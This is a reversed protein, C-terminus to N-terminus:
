WRPSHDGVAGSSRCGTRVSGSCRLAPADSRAQRHRPLAPERRPVRHGSLAEVPRNERYARRATRRRHPSWDGEV